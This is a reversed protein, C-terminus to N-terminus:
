GRLGYEAPLDLLHHGFIQRSQLDIVVVLYIDKTETAALVHEFTDAANRYVYNVAGSLKHKLLESTPIADIYPWVDLVVDEKGTVDRMPFAFTTGFNDPDLQRTKM